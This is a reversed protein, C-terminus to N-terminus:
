ICSMKSRRHVESFLGLLGHLSCKKLGDGAKAVKKSDLALEKIVSVNNYLSKYQNVLVQISQCM